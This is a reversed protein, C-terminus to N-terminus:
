HCLSSLVSAPTKSGGVTVRFSIFLIAIAMCVICEEARVRHTVFLLVCLLLLLPVIAVGVM